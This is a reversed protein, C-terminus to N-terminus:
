ASRASLFRGLEADTGCVHEELWTALWHSAKVATFAAPGREGYERSLARLETIFHDHETKHRAYGRYRTARMTAEEAAFHAAAYRHLFEVLPGVEDAEGRRLGELLRAARRFLERHQDDIEPVGVSLAPTWDLTM